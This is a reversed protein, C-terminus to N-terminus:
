HHITAWNRPFTASLIINRERSSFSFEHCFALYGLFYHMAFHIAFCRCKSIRTYRSVSRSKRYGCDVAVSMKSYQKAHIAILSFGRRWFNERCMSVRRNKTRSNTLAPITLSIGSRLCLITASANVFLSGAGAKIACGLWLTINPCTGKEKFNKLFQRLLM